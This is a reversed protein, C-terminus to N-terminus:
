TAEGFAQTADVKNMRRVAPVRDYTETNWLREDDDLATRRGGYSPNAVRLIERWEARDEAVRAADNTTM